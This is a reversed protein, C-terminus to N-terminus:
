KTIIRYENTLGANKDWSKFTEIREKAGKETKNETHPNLIMWNKKSKNYIQVHYEM